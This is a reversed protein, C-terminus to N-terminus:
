WLFDDAYEDFPLSADGGHRKVTNLVAQQEQPLLLREGKRLRYYTRQGFRSALDYAIEQRKNYPQCDLLNKFGKAYRVTQASRFYPCEGEMGELRKPSVIKWYEEKETMSEAAPRRLCNGAKPCESDLCLAYEYPIREPNIETRM